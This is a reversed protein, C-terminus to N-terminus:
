AAGEVAALLEGDAALLEGDAALLEGDAAYLAAAVEGSSWAADRELVETPVPPKPGGRVRSADISDRELM